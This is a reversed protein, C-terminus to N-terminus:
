RRSPLFFWATTGGNKASELSIRGGHAEVIARAIALGLGVGARSSDGRTLQEFKQFADEIRHTPVGPGEDRVTVRVGDSNTTAHVDVRGGPPSFKIANTLLNVLVQRIRQRDAYMRRQTAARTLVVQKATAQTRLMAFAEGVLADLDFEEPDISLKGAEIRGLDLLDDVLVSLSKASGTAMDVIQRAEDGLTGVAGGQLLRLSGYIASLPTRLEHSVMSVFDDKMRELAKRDTIDHVMARVRRVRGDELVPEGFTRVWRKRGKSTELPLELEFPVVDDVTEQLARELQARAARPYFALMAPLTPTWSLAVDHIRYVEESWTATGDELDAEWGGVRAMRATQLLLRQSNELRARTRVLETTDLAVAHVLGSAPEVRASWRFWLYHGDTHRLRHELGNIEEGRSLRALMNQTSALDGPHTLSSLARGQLTSPTHGLLTRWRDNVERLTGSRELICALAPSTQFLQHYHAYVGLTTPAADRDLADIHNAAQRALAQLCARQDEDLAKPVDDFTCITGLAHGDRTVIPAGAYFRLHPPGVVLPNDAFRPDERADEVELMTEEVIAHACLAVNRPTSTRDVGHAAKSWQREGAVLSVLAYPTGCIVAALRALDDYVAEAPSDLLGTDRLRAVRAEEGDPIPPHVM